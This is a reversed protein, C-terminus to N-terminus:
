PKVKTTGLRYLQLVEAASLARNYIRVDDLSGGYYGTATKGITIASANIATGTTIAIFHWNTNSVTSSVAGDVYITPSTFNNASITGSSVSTSALTANLSLIQQTTTNPKMWFSVTMVGNYTPGSIYSTSGNFSLAQGIKGAVTTTAGYLNGNNGQGSSDTV